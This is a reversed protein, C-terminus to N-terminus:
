HKEERKRKRRFKSNATMSVSMLALTTGVCSLRQVVDQVIDVSLEILAM